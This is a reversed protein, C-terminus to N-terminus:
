ERSYNLFSQNYSKKSLRRSNQQSDNQDLVNKKLPFNKNDNQRM